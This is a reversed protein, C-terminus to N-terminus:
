MRAVRRIADKVYGLFYVNRPKDVKALDGTFLLLNSFAELTQDPCKCYGKFFANPLDTRVLTALFLEM